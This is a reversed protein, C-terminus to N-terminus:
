SCKGFQNALAQKLSDLFSIGEDDANVQSLFSTKMGDPLTITILEGAGETCDNKPLTASCIASYWIHDAGGCSDSDVFTPYYPVRFGQFYQDSNDNPFTALVSADSIKTVKVDSWSADSSACSLGDPRFRVDSWEVWRSIVVNFNDPTGYGKTAQFALTHEPATIFLAASVVSIEKTDADFAFAGPVTQSILTYYIPERTVEEVEPLIAAIDGDAATDFLSPTPPILKLDGETTSFIIARVIADTTLTGNDVRVILNVEMPASIASIDDTSIEGTASNISFIGADNGSIISYTLPLAERDSAIMTYVLTATPTTDDLVFRGNRVIPATTVKTLIVTATGTDFSGDSSIGKVDIIYRNPADPTSFFNLPGTVTVKGDATITIGPYFELPIYTAVNVGTITGILTGVATNEPITVSFDNVTPVIAAPCSYITANVGLFKQYRGDKYVVDGIVMDPIWSPDFTEGPRYVNDVGLTNKISLLLRKFKQDYGITIGNGTFSNDGDLRLNERFFSNLGANIQELGGKYAFMFGEKTDPYMYGFPTRVCALQQRTGAYGLKASLGEQPEFQFIDGSGLTVAIIDSELKAKDQTLMLSNEFHLLLRDDIGEVNVFKGMNKQAEYYDLPLFTKWSRTKTQRSLKGGRHIRYPHQYLDEAFTNFIDSSVLDDLANSDKSYGFQNPDNTRMFPTLYNADEATTLTSKPYYKSYINGPMEFRSYLNAATECIFKRAVKTGQFYPDGGLSTEGSYEWRGYTHFTYEGIYMDGHYFVQTDLVGVSQAARVLSQGNFPVFLNSKLLMLNSLFTSENQVAQTAPTHGMVTEPNVSQLSIEGGPILTGTPNKLSGGFFTEIGLNLWKGVQSHNPVYQTNKIGKFWVASVTPIEGDKVYDLKYVMPGNTRGGAVAGDEMYGDTYPIRTRREKLELTLYAPEASPRNFLMDFSHFHFVSEDLYLPKKGASKWNIQSNFNGGSSYYVAPNLAIDTSARQGFLLLSQGLVTSNGVSRKAYYIEWGIIDSAYEAPIIVNEVSIGLMDLMSKGYEPEGAYFNEKCWKISPFRHHRVPTNRLDEGGLTSSDFDATNPYTETANKWTGFSCEKAGANFTAITDEVQFKKAVVSEASAIASDAANDVTLAPGVLTFGETTRGSALNYKIYFSYVERHAFTKEKGTVMPEYVPSVSILKSHVKLKILNAYKQMNIKKPSDLGVIYLADNLQGIAEVRTYVAPPILIEDITIDETVESGTYIFVGNNIMTVPTILQVATLQGNVKSIISFQIQNYKPDISGVTIELSKDTATGQTGTVIEPASITLYGTETGDKAIYKAAVYYAGPQLSGGPQVKVDLTPKLSNPFLKIDDLSTAQPNDCNLFFPVVNKDTFAIVIEGKYNRQAQGTVFHNTSLKLKFPLATDNIIPVYVDNVFDFYGIASNINNTSIFVPFKDTEIVGIIIYPATAASQSFGPENIVSGIVYNQVGNKGFPYSGEPQNIPRVNRDLHTFKKM